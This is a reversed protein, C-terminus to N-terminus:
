GQGNLVEQPFFEDVGYKKADARARIIHSQKPTTM